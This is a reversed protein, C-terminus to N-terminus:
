FDDDGGADMFGTESLTVAMRARAFLEDFTIIEPDTLSRRFREFSEFMERHRRGVQLFEDLTGVVLVSRPRCIATWEDTAFGDKAERNVERGRRVVLDVQAQCQAVGGSVEPSVRWAGARYESHLLQTSHTKIEVLVLASLAGATRLLGDARKGSGFASSGAVVQELSAPDWSHLFQPALGTGFIWRNEEFYRQWVAEPGAPQGDAGQEARLAEFCDRDSLMREFKEVEHKRRAFATVEPADIDAEVLEILADRYEEYAGARLREEQLLESVAHQGLRVGADGDIFRASSTILALFTAFSTVEKGSLTFREGLRPQGNSGFRQFALRSIARSDEFFVAKVQQRTPTERILLEWGQDSEFLVEGTADCVQYAFRCWPAGAGTGPEPFRRSVYFREPVRNLAYYEDRDDHLEPM